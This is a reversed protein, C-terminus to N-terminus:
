LYKALVYYEEIYRRGYGTEIFERPTGSYVLRGSEFYYIRDGLVLADVISHTVHIATFGIRSHVDRLFSRAISRLRPDLASFPEDLLILKPKVVLARALAVRQKEGGSLSGPRRDLLHKIGLVSAIWEVQERIAEGSYGRAKLGYAINGFVSIHPFLAYDQPVIPICRKEPPYSTVDEGDVLIRGRRPKIFGAITYLFVTKGVGSPGMVIAYERDRITLKPIELRFGGVEVVLDEIVIM